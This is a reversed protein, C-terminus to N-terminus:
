PSSVHLMANFVLLLGILTLPNTGFELTEFRSCGLALAAGRRVAAPAELARLNPVVCALPGRRTSPPKKEHVSNCTKPAEARRKLDRPLACDHKGRLRIIAGVIAAKGFMAGDGQAAVEEPKNGFVVEIM